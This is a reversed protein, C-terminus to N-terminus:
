CLSKQFIMKKIYRLAISIAETNNRNRTVDVMICYFPVDATNIEKSIQKKVCKAMIDIINNQILPTPYTANEPIIKVCEALHKDKKVMYQFLAQFLSSESKEDKVYSGRLPLEQIVLFKIIDFISFIYYCHKELVSENVLTSIEKNKSCCQDQEIWKSM